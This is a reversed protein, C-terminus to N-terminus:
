TRPLMQTQGARDLEVWGPHLDPWPSAKRTPRRFYYSEFKLLRRMQHFALGDFGLESELDPKSRFSHHNWLNVVGSIWDLQQLYYNRMLDAGDEYEASSAQNSVQLNGGLWNHTLHTSLPYAAFDPDRALESIMRMFNSYYPEVRQFYNFGRIAAHRTKLSYSTLDGLRDLSMEWQTLIVAHVMAQMEVPLQFPLGDHTVCGRALCRAQIFGTRDLMLERGLSEDLTAHIQSECHRATVRRGSPLLMAGNRDDYLTTDKLPNTIRAFPYGYFQDNAAYNALVGWPDPTGELSPFNVGGITPLLDSFIACPAQALSGLHADPYLYRAPFLQAPGCARALASFYWFLRGLQIHPTLSYGIQPTVFVLTTHLGRLTKPKLEQWLDHHYRLLRANLKSGRCQSHSQFWPLTSLNAYSPPLKRMHPLQAEAKIHPQYRWSELGEPFRGRGSAVLCQHASWGPPLTFRTLEHARAIPIACNLVNRSNGRATLNQFCLQNIEHGPEAIANWRQSFNQDMVSTTMQAYGMGTPDKQLPSSSNKAWYSFGATEWGM